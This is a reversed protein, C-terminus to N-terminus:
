PSSLLGAGEVSRCVEASFPLGRPGYYEVRLADLLESTHNAEVLALVCGGFGGGTLGAGLVGPVQEAIDVLQDLEACSCRFGGPQYMLAARRRRHPDPSDLDGLLRRLYGDTARTMENDWPVVSGDSQFRVVRDGDHSIFMLEGFGQLDGKKLMAVCEGGRAIEALGFMAVGRPRYGEAPADHTRFVRELEDRREEFRSFLAERTVRPPMHLLAEYVVRDTFVERNLYIDGLHRVKEEVLSPDFGLNEVFVQKLLLLTMNYAAITENYASLETASKQARRMSNCMVVDYGSPLPVYELVEFPFFRMHAVQGRRGYIMAAHDGAGGRTGVYWEGSGCLEVLEAPPVDLVNLAVCALSAAVVLASSSSLGASIPIDGSVLINAGRLAGDPFRHQLRLFAARVYNAWDGRHESLYHVVGPSDIYLLWDQWAGRAIEEGLSFERHGFAVPDLNELVVRDDDRPGAMLWIERRHTVYNVEGRRHEVHVGMLNIRAPARCVLVEGGSAFREAFRDLMRGLLQWRGDALRQHGGYAAELARRLTAEQQQCAEQWREVPALFHNGPFPYHEPRYEASM